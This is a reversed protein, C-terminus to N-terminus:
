RSAVPNSIFQNVVTTQFTSYKQLSSTLFTSYKQLSSYLFLNIMEPAFEYCKKVWKLNKRPWLIIWVRALPTNM